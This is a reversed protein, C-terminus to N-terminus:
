SGGDEEVGAWFFCVAVLGDQIGPGSDWIGHLRDAMRRKM